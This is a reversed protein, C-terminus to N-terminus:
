LVVRKTKGSTHIFSVSGVDIKSINWGNGVSGYVPLTKFGKGPINVIAVLAGGWTNVQSVFVNFGDPKKQSVKKKESKQKRKKVVASNFKSDMESVKVKLAEISLLDFRKLAEVEKGSSNLMAKMVPLEKLLELAYLADNESKLIRGQYSSVEVKLSAIETANADQSEQSAYLMKEESDSCGVILSVLILGIIKFNNKM